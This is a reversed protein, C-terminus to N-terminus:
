KEDYKDYTYAVPGEERFAISQGSTLQHPPTETGGVFGFKHIKDLFDRYRIHGYGWLFPSIPPDSISIQKRLPYTQGSEIISGFGIKNLTHLPYRPKEALTNSEKYVFCESIIVAETRGRNTLAVEIFTGEGERIINMNTIAFRPLEVGLTAQATLEAVKAAKQTARAVKKAINLSRETETTQRKSITSTENVMTKTSRWLKFTFYALTGTILALIGTFIAVWVAPIKWWEATPREDHKPTTKDATKEQSQTDLLKLVPTFTKASSQSPDTSKKDKQPTTYPQEIKKLSSPMPPNSQAAITFPLLLSLIIIHRIKMKIISNM